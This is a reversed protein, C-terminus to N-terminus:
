KWDLDNSLILLLILLFSTVLLSSCRENKGQKRNNVTIRAPLPSSGRDDDFVDDNNIEDVEGEVIEGEKEEEEELIVM